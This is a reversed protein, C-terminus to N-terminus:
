GDANATVATTLVAIGHLPPWPTTVTLATPPVRAYLPVPFKVTDAPVCVNGTVSPLPHISESVIVM